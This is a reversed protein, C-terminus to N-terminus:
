RRLSVNYWGLHIAPKHSPRGCLVQLDGGSAGPSFGPSEGGKGAQLPVAQRGRIGAPGVLLLALGM